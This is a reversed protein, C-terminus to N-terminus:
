SFTVNGKTQSVNGITTNWNYYRFSKKDIDWVLERGNETTQKRSVGEQLDYPLENVKVFRMSRQTNDKKKFTGNYVTVM